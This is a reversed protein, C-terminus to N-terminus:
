STVHPVFRHRFEIRKFRKAVPLRLHSHIQFTIILSIFMHTNRRHEM